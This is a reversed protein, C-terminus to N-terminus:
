KSRIDNLYDYIKEVYHWKDNIMKFCKIYKLAREYEYDGLIALRLLDLNNILDIMKVFASIPNNMVKNIYTEYKERKDHTILKLPEDIYQDFYDKYGCDYFKKRIEKHTVSTDEVVDHLFILETVGNYPIGNDEMAEIKYAYTSSFLLDNYYEFMGLPHLFYYDGNVRRQDRHAREAIWYAIEVPLKTANKEAEEYKDELEICKEMIRKRRVCNSYCFYFCIQDLAFQCKYNLYSLNLRM